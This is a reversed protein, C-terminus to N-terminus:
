QRVLKYATLTGNFRGLGTIDGRANIDEASLLTWGSGAPLVSNLDHIQEGLWAVASATGLTTNGHFQGVYGVVWGEANVGKAESHIADPLGPLTGLSRITGDSWVFANYIPSGGSTAGVVASGVVTGADNVDHAQSARTVDLAGLNVRTGERTWLTARTVGQANKSYGVVDGHANISWARALTTDLGDLSGLDTMAGAEWRFARSATGTSASGVIVGSDNIDTAVATAGGLTGLDTLAGAEWRFARPANNDSEGVVVGSANIGFARSFANSGPLTGLETLTDDSWHYAILPPPTGGVVASRVNGVVQGADNMAQAHSGTGSPYGIPVLTYEPLEPTVPPPEPVCTGGQEVYGADCHCHDGHAHGHEGCDLPPEEGPVCTGGQEVYGEDCHCHDGHAHGHEGCDPAPEEAPVCTGDQEVYGEDCHCHDGHAHGHEGCDPAPEEAPVCTGDQETYGADCHCHDDHLHGHGGCEVVPEEAPVCTLGDAEYGEDCHCHDGHLHGYGGCEIPEPADSAGCGGLLIATAALLALHLTRLHM